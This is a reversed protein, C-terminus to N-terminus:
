TRDIVGSEEYQKLEARQESTAGTDRVSPAVLDALEDIPVGTMAAATPVSIVGAIVARRILLRFRPPFRELQWKGPDQHLEEDSIEYGLARAFLVPRVNKFEDFATASLARMQRLRVLATIYSVDYFRQLQIVEAPEQIKPGFGHEEMVRRLGESPMLFEGAFNDAFRERPNKTSTSVLYRDDSHFLAHALEHAQTFRRRGPTMSLNVLISFGVDPHNLFAGSVTKALDLGLDSRYVTVGLLECISDMDGIPGLGLRLHSRVEEAKRRADDAGEYGSARIFPSQKMGHLPYDSAAALDAYGDLFAVFDALGGRAEHPADTLTRLLMGAMDPVAPGDADFGELAAVPTRLLRSLITLQRDNPRRKATEWYSVMARSVGLAAAVDDQGLGSRTRAAVLREGLMM